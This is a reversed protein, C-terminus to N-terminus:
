GVEVTKQEEEDARETCRRHPMSSNNNFNKM